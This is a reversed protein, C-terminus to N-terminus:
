VGLQLLCCGLGFAAFVAGLLSITNSKRMYNRLHIYLFVTNLILFILYTM